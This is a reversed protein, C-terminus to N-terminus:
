KHFKTFLKISVYEIKVNNIISEDHVIQPIYIIKEVPKEIFKESIVSKEVIKEVPKEIIKEIFIKKEVIKEVIQEIYVPKEVIKEIINDIYVLIEVPRDVYVIQREQIQVLRQPGEYLQHVFYQENSDVQLSKLSIKM